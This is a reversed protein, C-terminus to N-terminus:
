STILSRTPHLNANNAKHSSCRRVYSYRMGIWVSECKLHRKTKGCLHALIHVIVTYVVICILLKLHEVSWAIPVDVRDWISAVDREIYVGCM